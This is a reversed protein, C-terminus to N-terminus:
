LTALAENLTTSPRMVADAKADDPQVLPAARSAVGGAQWIWSVVVIGKEDLTKALLKGVEATKWASGVEYSPVLAPM